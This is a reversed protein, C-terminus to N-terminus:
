QCERPKNILFERVEMSSSIYNCVTEDMSCLILELKQDDPLFAFNHIKDTIPTISESRQDHYIPCHFLFHLENEVSNTCFPCYREHVDKGHHRGVEIMLKHNSLRFKTVNKRITINKIQTLYKEYGPEKKFIAYTRLKSKESQIKAFTEQHYIDCLRQHMRKFVFPAKSIHDGTFFSLFGIKELNYKILSTWPLDLELSEKLSSLLPANGNGRIMREWNKVAFKKVDFSLPTLGLELLVGDNTTQKQVGLIQKLISMYFTEIPNTKPIKLCGWFDSAYLLIPKILSQVLSLVLPVNHNFSTGLDTKIKMFAKFARDKLDKLGTNVEGSPTVIFGLYKYSQVCELQVSNLSFSSTLTERNLQFGYM